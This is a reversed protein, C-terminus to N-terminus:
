ALIKMCRAAFLACRNRHKQAPVKNGRRMKLTMGKSNRVKIKEGEVEEREAGSSAEGCLENDCL